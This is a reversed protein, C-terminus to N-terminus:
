LFGTANDGQWMERVSVPSTCGNQPMHWVHLHREKAIIARESLERNGISRVSLFIMM